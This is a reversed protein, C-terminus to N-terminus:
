AEYKGRCIGATIGALDGRNRGLTAVFLRLLCLQRYRQWHYGLLNGIRKTGLCLLRGMSSFRLDGRVFITSRHLDPDIVIHVQCMRNVDPRCPCPEPSKTHSWLKSVLLYQFFAEPSPQTRYRVYLGLLTATCDSVSQHDAGIRLQHPSKETGGNHHRLVM